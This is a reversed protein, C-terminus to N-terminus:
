EFEIGEGTLGRRNSRRILLKDPTIIAIKETRLGTQKGRAIPMDNLAYAIRM